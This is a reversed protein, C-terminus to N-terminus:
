WVKVPRIDAVVDMHIRKPEILQRCMMRDQRLVESTMLILRTVPSMMQRMSPLCLWNVKVLPM